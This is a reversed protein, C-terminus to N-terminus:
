QLSVLIPILGTGSALPRLAKGIVSGPTQTPDSAKMAHGPTPSTTLLDGVEVSGHNADVRCCVKGSLAIPVRGKEGPRRDLLIGPRYEGSGSVVGAVRKDYARSSSRLLDENEIVMVTGPEVGDECRFEEACDANRLIIDGAQGNLHIAANDSTKNDGDSKFIVLDGDAGNGGLWINGGAAELRIRDKNDSSRFTLLGNAGAGGIRVAAEQGSLHITAKDVSHNDGGSPFIVLDGDVGNGGLYFNASEDLKVVLDGILQGQKPDARFFLNGNAGNVIIKDHQQSNTLSIVPQPNGALKVVPQNATNLLHVPDTASFNPM